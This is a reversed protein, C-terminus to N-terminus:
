SKLFGTNRMKAKNIKKFIKAYEFVAVPYEGTATSKNKLMKQKESISEPKM